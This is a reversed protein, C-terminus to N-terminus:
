ASADANRSLDFLQPPEPVTQSDDQAATLSAASGIYTVDCALASINELEQIPKSELDEKSFNCRANAVLAEVLAEKRAQHMQVGSNLVAQIEDPASAIYAETTVPADAGESEEAAAAAEAEANATVEAAAAAIEEPTQSAEVPAMKSLQDEDLSDLWERDDEVYQTAENAILGNVLEEKNMANEQITSHSENDTIVEVPLFQTVPRVRTSDGKLTVAGANSVKFDRSFLEGSWGKEFIVKGADRNNAFIALIFIFENPEAEALGAILAARLDTDSLHESNDTPEQGRFNLIGGALDLLRKFLGEQAGDTDEAVIVPERPCSSNLQAARMVPQFVNAGNANEM